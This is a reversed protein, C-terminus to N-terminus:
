FNKTSAINVSKNKTTGSNDGTSTNTDLGEINKDIKLLNIIYSIIFIGFVIFLIFYLINKFNINPIKM